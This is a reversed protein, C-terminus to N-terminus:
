PGFKSRDVVEVQVDITKGDRFIELSVKRGVEILGVLNVLHADDDITTGDVKLIVDGPRIGAAEAPGGRTVTVVRTGTARAMGLEAAIAPGFKGDLSVGLFAHTVKGNDILQRAVSMFLNIPISFGIGEFGGSNSAIATNIGIIEGHLNCLPGGSNGPNIAADTQLFDQFKVSEDGLDLHHRGRASIIGFTVSHSLNFPSGVALVFDGIEMRDSDGVPSAILDAAEIPLVGVDTEEDELVRQPHLRRGDALYIRIGDAPASRFVHRNTLVYFRDKRQIIVGSGDEEVHRDRNHQLTQQPVDAEIHVVTPGILKAVTKLVTAQAELVPINQELIRRLQARTEPSTDSRQGSVTQFKAASAPMISMALIGLLLMRPQLPAWVCAVAARVSWSNWGKSM